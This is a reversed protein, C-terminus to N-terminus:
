ADGPDCDGAVCLGARPAKPLPGRQAYLEIFVPGRGPLRTLAEEFTRAELVHALGRAELFRAVLSRGSGSPARWFLSQYAGPVLVASPIGPCLPEDLLDLARAFRLSSLRLRRLDGRPAGGFPTVHARLDDLPFQGLVKSM